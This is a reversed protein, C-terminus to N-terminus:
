QTKEKVPAAQAAGDTNEEKIPAERRRARDEAAMAILAGNVEAGMILVVATLNLWVMLVIIAGLAGYIASYNAFNEVYFAYAASAAMWGALAALVGPVIEGARRRGDQAMAYLAGVAGVVLVGLVLFRLDSWLEIFPEPLELLDKASM